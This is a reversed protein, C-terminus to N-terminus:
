NFIEIQDLLSIIKSYLVKIEKNELQEQNIYKFFEYSYFSMYESLKEYGETIDKRLFDNLNRWQDYFEKNITDKHMTRLKNIYEINIQNQLKWDDTILDIQTNYGKFEKHELDISNLINKTDVKKNEYPAWALIPNIKETVELMFRESKRQEISLMKSATLLNKSMLVHYRPKNNYITHACMGFHHRLHFSLQHNILKEELSEGILSNEFTNEFLEYILNKYYSEQIFKNSSDVLNKSFAGASSNDKSLLKGYWRGIYKSRYFEGMGGSLIISKIDQNKNSRGILSLSHNSGMLYSRSIGLQEDITMPYISSVSEKYLDIGLLKRLGNGIELDGVVSTNDIFAQLNEIKDKLNGVTALTIRSDFGGSIEVIYKEFNKHSAIAEVTNNVDQIGSNIVEAYCKDSIGKFANNVSEKEKIIWGEENIFIYKNLPLNFVGKIDMNSHANYTYMSSNYNNFYIWYMAKAIDLEGKFGMWSLTLLLLHYRNSIYIANDHEAYFLSGCGFDDQTAIIHESEIRIATFIGTSNLMESNTSEDLDNEGFYFKDNYISMGSFLTYTDNFNIYEDNSLIYNSINKYNNLKTLNLNIEKAKTSLKSTRENELEKKSTILLFDKFPYQANWFELKKSNM